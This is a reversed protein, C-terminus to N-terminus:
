SQKPLLTDSLTVDDLIPKIDDHRLRHRIPDELWKKPMAVTYIAIRKNRAYVAADEAVKNANTFIAGEVGVSEAPIGLLQASRREHKGAEGVRATLNQTESLTIPDDASIVRLKCSGVLVRIRKGATQRAYVDVEGKLFAPKYSLFVEHSVHQRMLEAVLVEFMESAYSKLKERIPQYHPALGLGELTIIRQLFEDSRFFPNELEVIPSLRHAKRIVSFVQEESPRWRRPVLAGKNSVRRVAETVAWIAEYSDVLHRHYPSCVFKAHGKKAWRLKGPLLSGAYKKLFLHRNVLEKLQAWPADYEKAALIYHDGWFPIPTDGPQDPNYGYAERHTKKGEFVIERGTQRDFAYGVPERYKQTLKNLFKIWILHNTPLTHASIPAEGDRPFQGPEEIGSDAM